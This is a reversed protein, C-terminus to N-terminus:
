ETVSKLRSGKCHSCLVSWYKGEVPVYGTGDCQKCALGPSPEHKMSGLEQYLIGSGSYYDSPPEYYSPPPDYRDSM